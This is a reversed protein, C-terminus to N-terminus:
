STLILSYSHSVALPSSLFVITAAYLLKSIGSNSATTDWLTLCPKAEGEENGIKWEKAKAIVEKAVTEAKGDAIPFSGLLKPPREDGGALVVLRVQSLTM